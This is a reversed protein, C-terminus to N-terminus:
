CISPDLACVILGAERRVGPGLDAEADGDVCVLAHEVNFGSPLEVGPAIVCRRLRCDPGIWAEPM